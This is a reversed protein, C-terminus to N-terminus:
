CVYRSRPCQLTWILQISSKALLQVAGRDDATADIGPAWPDEFCVRSRSNSKSELPVPCNSELCPVRSQRPWRKGFNELLHGCHVSSPTVLIWVPESFGAVLILPRLTQHPTCSLLIMPGSNKLLVSVPRLYTLSIRLPGTSSKRQSM